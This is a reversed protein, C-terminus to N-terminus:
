RNKEWDVDKTGSATALSVQYMIESYFKDSVQKIGKTKTSYSYFEIDYVVADDYDYDVVCVGNINITCSYQPTSKEYSYFFGADEVWGREWGHSFLIRSLVNPSLTMGAFEYTSNGELEQPNKAFIKRGLQNFIQNIEYDALQNTWTLIDDSSLEIPHILGIQMDNTLEYEDEDKTNFTGDEMYRFTEVIENDKYTAWILSLAFQKMIPNEVFLKTFGEYTWKRDTSLTAELRAKQISVVEKLQKKIAKFEKLSESAIEQTDNKGVAPLTKLKKGSEDSVVLELETSLQVNFKRTGYDVVKKGASDFGLTPIIKDLFEEKTLGLENAAFDLADIAAGKIQKHKYKRSISDVKLLSLKNSNLALAKVVEGAFAGRSYEWLSIDDTLLKYMADGGHVSACYLMWKDKAEAGSKVFNRYVAQIAIEKEDKNLKSELMKAMPAVGLVNDKAYIMVMAKLHKEDVLKGDLDHVQPIAEFYKDVKITNVTLGNVVSTLDITDSNGSKMAAEIEANKYYVEMLVKLKADKEVECAAKVEKHYIDKYSAELISLATKRVALKSDKLNALVIKSLFPNESYIRSVIFQVTKTKENLSVFFDKYEDINESLIDLYFFKAYTDLNKFSEVIHECIDKDNVFLKKRELYSDRTYNILIDKVAHEIDYSGAICRLNSIKYNKGHQYKSEVSANNVYSPKDKYFNKYFKSLIINNRIIFEDEGFQSKYFDTAKALFYDVPGSYYEITEMNTLEIVDTKGTVFDEAGRYDSKSVIVDIIDQKNLNTFKHNHFNYNSLILVQNAKFKESFEAIDEITLGLSNLGIENKYTSTVSYKEHDMDMVLAICSIKDLFETYNMTLTGIEGRNLLGLSFENNFKGILEKSVQTVAFNTTEITELLDKSMLKKIENELLSVYEDGDTLMVLAMIIREDATTCGNLISKKVDLEFERLMFMRALVTQKEAINSTVNTRCINKVLLTGIFTKDIYKQPVSLSLMLEPKRLIADFFATEGFIAKGLEFRIHLTDEHTCNMCRYVYAYYNTSVDKTVLSSLLLARQAKSGCNLIEKVMDYNDNKIENTELLINEYFEKESDCLLDYFPIVAEDGLSNIYKTYELELEDVKEQNDAKKYNMIADRIKISTGYGEEYCMALERFTFKKNSKTSFKFAEFAEEPTGEYNNYKIMSAYNYAGMESKVEKYAKTFNYFAKDLDKLTGEADRYCIGLNNYANKYGLEIARSLYLYKKNFDVPVGEGNGYCGSLNYSCIGSGAKAGKKYWYVAKEMDKVAGNKPFEYSCGKNFFDSLEKETYVKNKLLDIDFDINVVPISPISPSKVEVKVDDKIDTSAAVPTPTVVTATGGTEEVYGKKVKSAILKNVEADVSSSDTTKSTGNTGRRGYCVTFSTADWSIHWFKDSSGEVFNFKRINM